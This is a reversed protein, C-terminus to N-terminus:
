LPEYYTHLSLADAPQPEAYEAGHPAPLCYGNPAMKHGPCDYHASPSAAASAHSPARPPGPLRAPRPCTASPRPTSPSRRCRSPTNRFSGPVDYHSLILPVTYGEDAVPRFTSGLKQGAPCLEPEAYDNHPPNPLVDLAAREPPYSILESESRPLAKGLGNQCGKELSCKDANKRRRKWCLGALLIGVCVILVLVVGVVVMVPQSSSEAPRKEVDPHKTPVPSYPASVTPVKNQPPVLVHAAARNQWLQPRLLLYKAVVPPILSNLVEQDSDSNGMFVKRERSLVAKYAKWNRSDKSYLLTYSRTYARAAGTGPGRGARGADASWGKTLIGTISSREQLEVQLWPKPDGSDAVWPLVQGTSDRNGPSWLRRRGLSDVEEWSSSANYSLVPLLSDCDKRFVLKKESLSGTKSLLGNAFSSEYLTISRQRSVTVPGGLDDSVVGAHIAAKCLVSTDRYGQSSQGWIDGMVDRCGAPCYVRFGESTFHTGRELCSILDTQQDTAYSLLFGRGSRHTGSLFLITVESSNLVLKRNRPDLDGCLPGLPPEGNGPTITLSGATACNQSPELNFDGFALRLSRGQAGRAAVRVAHRQPLHRPLEAIGAHRKVEQAM